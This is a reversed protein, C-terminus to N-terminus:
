HADLTNAYIYGETIEGDIQELYESLEEKYEDFPLCYTIVFSSYDDRGNVNEVEGSFYVPFEQDFKFCVGLDNVSIDVTLYEGGQVEYEFVPIIGRGLMENFQDKIIKAINM